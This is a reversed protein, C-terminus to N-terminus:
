KWANNEWLRIKWRFHVGVTNSCTLTQLLLMSVVFLCCFRFTGRELVSEWHKKITRAKLGGRATSHSTQIVLASIRRRVQGPFSIAFLKMPPLWTESLDGAPQRQQQLPIWSGMLPETLTILIFTSSLIKDEDRSAVNNKRADEIKDVLWCSFDDLTLGLSKSLKEGLRSSCGRVPEFCGRTHENASCGWIREKQQRCIRGSSDINHWATSIVGVQGTVMFRRCSKWWRAVELMYESTRQFHPRVRAM